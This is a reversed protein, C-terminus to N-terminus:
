PRFAGRSFTPDLAIGNRRLEYWADGANPAPAVFMVPQDALVREGERVVPRGSASVRGVLGGPARLDIQWRGDSASQARAVEADFGALVAGSRTPAWQVARGNRRVRANSATAVRLSEPRLSLVDLTDLRMAAKGLLRYQEALHAAHALLSDAATQVGAIARMRADQARITDLASRIAGVQTRLAAVHPSAGSDHQALARSPDRAPWDGSRAILTGVGIAAVLAAGVGVSGAVRLARETFTFSRPAETDHSILLITWRRM